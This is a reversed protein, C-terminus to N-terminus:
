KTLLYCGDIGALHGNYVPLGRDDMKLNLLFNRSEVPLEQRMVAQFRKPLLDLETLSIAAGLFEAKFGAKTMITCFDNPRYAISIPCNEGDTSKTFVDELSLHRFARELIRKHYAVYLHMWLSDYNYVMVRATGGPKLIRYLEALVSSLNSVHHLVGSSHIHDVSESEIPLAECTADQVILETTKDLAHAKLRVRAQEVSTSSVDVGILKKPKSYVGFGVLDNGPGCGFDVVVKGDYGHVPMLEIYDIYQANRWHFYELSAEATTFCQHNTVNRGEWYKKVASKKASLKSRSLINSVVNRM